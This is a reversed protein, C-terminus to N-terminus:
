GSAERPRKAKPGKVVQFMTSGGPALGAMEQTPDQSGVNMCGRSATGLERWSNKLCLLFAHVQCVHVHKCRVCMLM